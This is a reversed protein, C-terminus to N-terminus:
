GHPRWANVGYLALSKTRVKALGPFYPKLANVADEAMQRYTTWKGGTVHVAGDATDSVRHRRSLDATRESLSKGKTAGVTSSLGAWV